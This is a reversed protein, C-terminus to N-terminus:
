ADEEVGEPEEFAEPESTWPTGIPDDHTQVKQKKFAAIEEKTAVRWGVSRLRYAAHEKSCNHVTGHPNVIYYAKPKSQRKAM